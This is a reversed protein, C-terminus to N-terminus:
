GRPGLKRALRQHRIETRLRRPEHALNRPLRRTPHHLPHTQRRPLLTPRRRRRPKPSSNRTKATPTVHELNEHYRRSRQCVRHDGQTQHHRAQRHSAAAAPKVDIERTWGERCRNQSLPLRQESIRAPMAPAAFATATPASALTPTFPSNRTAILPGANTPTPIGPAAAFCPRNTAPRRGQASRSEPKRSIPKPQLPRPVVALRQRAHRLSGLSQGAKPRGAADEGAFEGQVVRVEAVGKGRRRLLLAPAAPEVPTNGNRRPRCAIAMPPSIANGPTSTTARTDARGVEPVSIAFLPRCRDM